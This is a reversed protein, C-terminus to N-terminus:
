KRTRSQLAPAMCMTVHAIHRDKIPQAWQIWSVRHRKRRCNDSAGDLIDNMCWFALFRDDVQSHVPEIPLFASDELQSRLATPVPLTVDCCQQLTTHPRPMPVEEEGAMHVKPLCLKAAGRAETVELPHVPIRLLPPHVGTLNAHLSELPESHQGGEGSSSRSAAPPRHALATPWSNNQGQAGATSTGM